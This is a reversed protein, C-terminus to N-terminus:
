EEWWEGIFFVKSDDASFVPTHCLFEPPFYDPNINTIGSGDPNMVYMDYKGESGIAGVVYVLRDGSHSWSVIG